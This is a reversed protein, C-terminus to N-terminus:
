TATQDLLIYYLYVCWGDELHWPVILTTNFLQRTWSFHLVLVFLERGGFTV